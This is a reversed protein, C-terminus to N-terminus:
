HLELNFEPVIEKISKFDIDKTLLISKRNICVAAIMTDIAGIPRGIKRLKNALEISLIYDLSNPFIIDYLGNGCPPYEVVSFITVADAEISEIALSTDLIKKKEM